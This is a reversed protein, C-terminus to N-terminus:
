ASNSIEELMIVNLEQQNAHHLDYREVQIGDFLLIESTESNNASKLFKRRYKNSKHDLSKKYLALNIIKRGM